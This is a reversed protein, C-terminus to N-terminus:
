VNRPKVKFAGAYVAEVLAWVVLVSSFAISWHAQFVIKEIGLIIFALCVGVITKQVFSDTTKTSLIKSPYLLISIAQAINWYTLFLFMPQGTKYVYAATAVAAGSLIFVFSFNVAKDQAASVEKNSFTKYVGLVLGALVYAFVVGGFLLSQQGNATFLWTLESRLDPAGLLLVLIAFSIVISGSGTVSPFLGLRSLLMNGSPIKEKQALYDLTLVSFVLLSFNFTFFLLVLVNSSMGGTFYSSVFLVVHFLLLFGVARLNLSKKDSYDSDM